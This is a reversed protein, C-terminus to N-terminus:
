QVTPPSRTRRERVNAQGEARSAELYALALRVLAARMEARDVETSAVYTVALDIAPRKDRNKRAAM